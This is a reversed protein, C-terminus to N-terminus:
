APQGQVAPAPRRECGPRLGGGRRRARTRWAVPHDHRRLPKLAAEVLAYATEATAGADRAPKRRTLDNGQVATAGEYIPLIRADRLCQAAGTEEIFGTGGHVQVVDNAIQM